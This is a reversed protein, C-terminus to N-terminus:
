FPPTNEDIDFAIYTRGSEKAKRQMEPLEVERLEQIKLKGAIIYMTLEKMYEQNKDYMRDMMSIDKLLVVEHKELEEVIKDVNVEAKDYQAKVSALDQRTKNFLGRLGKKQEPDFNMGKLEVVLNSLMDGVEGLDKTRVASLASDSFESINKQAASGYNLVQETNLIDIKKSFEKVAAQEAPSLKELELREVPIEEQKEEPKAEEAEQAAAAVAQANPELTLSPIFSNEESM